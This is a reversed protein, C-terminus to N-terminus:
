MDSSVDVVTVQWNRRLMKLTVNGTGGGCDLCRIPERRHGLKEGIAELDQEIVNQFFADSACCEYHDYKSAIQRYFEKNALIVQEHVSETTNAVASMKEAGGVLEAPLRGFLASAGSRRDSPRMSCKTM